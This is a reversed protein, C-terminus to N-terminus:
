MQEVQALADAMTSWDDEDVGDQTSEAAKMRPDERKRPDNMAGFGSGADLTRTKIADASPQLRPAVFEGSEHLKRQIEPFQIVVAWM